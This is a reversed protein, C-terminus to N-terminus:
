RSKGDVHVLARYRHPRHARRSDPYPKLALLKLVFEGVSIKDNEEYPTPTLGPLTALVFTTDSEEGATLHFVVVARGAWVCYVYLPCRSDETVEMFTLLPGGRGLRVAAGEEIEITDDFAVTRPTDSRSGPTLLECGILSCVLLLAAAPLMGPRRLESPTRVDEFRTGPRMM